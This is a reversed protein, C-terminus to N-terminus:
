EDFIMEELLVHRMYRNDNDCEGFVDEFDMISSNSICSEDYADDFLNDMGMYNFMYANDFLKDSPDYFEIDFLHEVNTMKVAFVNYNMPMCQRNILSIDFINALFVGYINERVLADLSKDNKNIIGVM